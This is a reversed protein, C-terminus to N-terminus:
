GPETNPPRRVVGCPLEAEVNLFQLIRTIDQESCELLLKLEADRKWKDVTCLIGVLGAGVATGRWVDIGDGDGATTGALYGYDLPYILDPLAPYRTAKPRDIFLDSTAVLYDLSTWFSAPFDM